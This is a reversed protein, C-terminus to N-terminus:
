DGNKIESSIKKLFNFVCNRNVAMVLYKKNIRIHLQGDEKTIHINQVHANHLALITDALAYPAVGIDIFEDDM